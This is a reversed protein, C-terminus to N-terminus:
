RGTVVAAAAVGTCATEQRAGRVAKWSTEWSRVKAWQPRTEYLLWHAEFVWASAQRQEACLGGTSKKDCELCLGSDKLHGSIRVGPDKGRGCGRRMRCLCQDPQELLLLHAGGPHGCKSKRRGLISNGWSAVFSVRWKRHM